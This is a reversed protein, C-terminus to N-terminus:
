QAKEELYYNRIYTYQSDFPFFHNDTVFGKSQNQHCGLKKSCMIQTTSIHNSNSPFKTIGFIIIQPSSGDTTKYDRYRIAAIHWKCQGPQYYDLPINISYKGDRKTQIPFDHYIQWSASVGEFHSVWYNCKPNYNDYEAIITLHIHDQLRPDIFGKVTMFYKPHPNLTPRYKSPVKTADSPHHRCGILFLSVLAIILMRYFVVTIKPM